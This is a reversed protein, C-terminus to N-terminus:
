TVLFVQLIINFKIKFILTHNLPSSKNPYHYRIAAPKQSFPLSGETEM